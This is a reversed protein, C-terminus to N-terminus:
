DSNLLDLNELKAKRTSYFIYLFGRHDDMRVSSIHEINIGCQRDLWENIESEVSTSLYRIDFVKCKM